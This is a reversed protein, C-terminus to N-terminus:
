ASVEITASFRKIISSDGEFSRWYKLQLHVTGSKKTLFTLTRTGGSGVIGPSTKSATYTSDQLALITSDTESIAWCYGTSPNEDLQFV